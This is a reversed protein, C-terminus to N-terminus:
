ACAYTTGRWSGAPDLRSLLAEVIEARYAELGASLLQVVVV